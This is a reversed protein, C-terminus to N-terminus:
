MTKRATGLYMDLMTTVTMANVKDTCAVEIVPYLLGAVEAMRVSGTVEGTIEIGYLGMGTVTEGKKVGFMAVSNMADDEL